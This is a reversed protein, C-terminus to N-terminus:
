EEGILTVAIREEPRAPRHQLRESVMQVDPDPLPSNVFHSFRKRAHPNNVTEQWECIVKERLQALEQELQANLGLKDSVIVDRLYDIGGDLNELWTSTRSLKDATRIYFMMFRDIYSILTEKDLDAMLLDGHRPKMGGNGCVYLNWGKDTAIIGIDKGQAESCERTCGSIGFKMKHPTRIGKYRHELEVGLATSDGVGFRCWATGVCTKAMRLAKAYAHGTEFGAAILKEWIAPLDQKQAGFMAIRQSGTIKTYLHYEQAIKGITLLGEPTIEGGPSRPIVSYTGDKQMNALFNDNTDQLSVLDDRLIYDNRCSALLSGITPKCVECGYGEGYRALLEDFTSIKEVRILHYLEQRSYAFHECLHHNVEIGLNTLEANLVQTILPVCGGCGTGAKTEAKIDAVTQCGNHIAQIIDGKTVDFCSCIQASDPLSEVGIAPKSGAHAPLILVDPNEPLEIRNLALQLLNGYDDTDGVLVAGLLYKNDDSVILRKYIENAEDLYIYSHCGNDTAHTNGIGGVDVGLLKLKASMDAGTFQNDQGLLHDAAVQAMKYGPAVLGYTRGHWSACEGIAYVDPDSTQCQDNIVLGGREAVVLGCQRALRDRPRIGTSFVVFDTELSSGDAFHLVKRSEGNDSATIETTNKGTHVRVGMREIKQKLQEGGLADLQEAMLVPSFEIVHTEIGLNKLAGAAELGLLGGGIVAGKRSRRACAEVANLDEITRYVFCDRTDSGKIPPVWPYSGTAIVLKDYHVTRGTNTHLVKEQRNVTIVRENTLVTINHKEHFGPKVLSLEEATHHSFYSSLHVRDYAVRPEECFVTIDFQGAGAKDTLEETFRHGVMGNGIIALKVNSM